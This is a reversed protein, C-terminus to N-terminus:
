RERTRELSTNPTASLRGLAEDVLVHIKPDPSKYGAIGRLRSYRTIAEVNRPTLQFGEQVAADIALVEGDLRTYLAHKAGDFDGGHMRELAVGDVTVNAISSVTAGYVLLRSPTWRGIQFGLVLCALGVVSVLITVRVM